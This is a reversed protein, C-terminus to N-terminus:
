SNLEEWRAYLHALENHIDDIHEDLVQMKQYDQYYEPEYRLERNAELEREKDTIQKEIKSIERRIGQVSRAPAERVAPSNSKREKDKKEEKQKELSEKQRDEYAAYSEPIYTARGEELLLLDTSLQQIFYRDHSVFLITGTFDHLAEELAEKGPIDLHNTPEDLLLVNNHKLLLKALSLRVKEGGSLVEVNKFVDDASFLFQGLVSRIQTRDLDPNDEWLEELVTRGNVFQALQQDFYGKEIQHGFMFSGALPSLLGMWTKILTSKGTGNPGIIALRQGRRIELHEITCLPKDYGITLNEVELVREGGKIRPSFHAHFTRTDAGKVPDLKEMRELYKIKSQAFAAKSAKYRFKEILQELRAIDKQQRRFAAQQRELNNKKQVIFSTYNGTYRTMHGYELDYVIEATHDLFMRDHSVIVVARPYSRVYGELWEITDLDLHNTPEDLLLIDPKSLLLRVFAIRTKQGGSFEGVHRNIDQETFGFRTFVTLMEAEWNYGNLNEFKEQARAYRTLLKESSDTEMQKEMDRMEDALKFVPAFVAKLAQEVTETDNTLAKQALYGITTDGQLSVKAKDFKEEHCICKLFTTKGSGNRGVLAIKETGKIEFQCDEFVTDTGFSKYAHSVQYLM